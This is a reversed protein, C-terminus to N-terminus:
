LAKYLITIASNPIVSTGSNYAITFGTTPNRDRLSLIANASTAQIYAIPTTTLFQGTYSPQWQGTLGSVVGNVFFSCDAVTGTNGTKATMVINGICMYEYGIPLTIDNSAVSIKNGSDHLIAGINVRVGDDTATTTTQTVEIHAVFLNASLIPFFSM